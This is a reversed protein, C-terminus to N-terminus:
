YRDIELLREDSIGFFHAIEHVVTHRIVRKLGEENRAQSEINRQFLTIRDPTVGAYDLGRKTLPIGEYVGLLGRDSSPPAEEILIEVNDLREAVWDPLGDLADAVLEEFRDSGPTVGM